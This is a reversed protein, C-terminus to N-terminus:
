STAVSRPLMPADGEGAAEYNRIVCWHNSNPSESEERAAGRVLLHIIHCTMHEDCNKEGKKNKGFGKQTMEDTADRFLVEFDDCHRRWWRWFALLPAGVGLTTALVM